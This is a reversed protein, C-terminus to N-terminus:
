NSGAGRKSGAGQKSGLKSQTFDIEENTEEEDEEVFILMYISVKRTIAM